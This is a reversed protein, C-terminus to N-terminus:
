IVAAATQCNREPSEEASFPPEAKRAEVLNTHQPNGHAIPTPAQATLVNISGARDTGREDPAYWAGQSLAAVGPLLDETLHAPVRLRGRDNFVETLDGEGIGRAAADAPHLWLRQPETAALEPNNDHISHCRRRSHWGILQLPYRARLPDRPGEPPDLYRPIPSAGREALRPTCLEVLGSATPFAREGRRQEAFAVKPPLPPYRFVGMGKLDEYAPLAPEEERTREYCFRLWDGAGRGETFAAGLGLKEALASLWDYEFRGEGVPEVIKNCFGVFDGWHWPNVLNEQELFSIGPLLLDAFRASPTLFLDSCLIFECKSEDRLLAATARIDSHQNILCNGALSFLMKVDSELRTGGRLGEAPGMARGHDVADVWRFVPISLPYPNEPMPLRARAHRKLFGNGAAWGGPVGVNGCMCALLIAGRAAQEGNGHRQAGYGQILAAPKARAYRLALDRIREAPVGCIAAAWDPTKPQGDWRGLLYDLVNDGPEAGAPLHEADFGLCRRDLFDRDALGETWVTYAMADLLAADTAPRLPFWEAGLATVTESRRPDVVVIPIGKERARRLWYLSASDFHTAAPNHGWLLILRSQLWLEPSSGTEATGYMLESAATICPCSYDNYYDLYGGDLALLRKCLKDPRLVASVGTSYHVYRSGPGYTDRIRVWQEASREVAEEWSIPVFRGEGRPGVRLLPRTLRDPRLFTKHYNLGRVCATMPPTDPAPAETETTFRLIKGDRVHAYLLCRGGCNNRGVTPIIREEAM